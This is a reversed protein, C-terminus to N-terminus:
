WRWGIPRNSGNDVVHRYPQTRVLIGGGEVAEFTARRTIFAGNPRELWRALKIREANNLEVSHETNM